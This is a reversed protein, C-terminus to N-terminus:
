RRSVRRLRRLDEPTTIKVNGPLGAVVRVPHGLREVLMADDTGGVGDRRAKEHAERLLDARFAQPTQVAWLESRDLTAEVFGGRVRKVTEAIPLACIAAGSEVAARVVDDVLRRTILPRVGDHVVVVDVPGPLALLALWVSDQRTPGGVVVTAPAGRGTRALIRRTLALHAAPAAVVVAAMSPHRTFHRVTMALIPTRGIRLFQKPMRAGLRAGAGGAPIVAALSTM